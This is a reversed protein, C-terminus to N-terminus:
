KWSSQIPPFDMSSSTTSIEIKLDKASIGKYPECETNFGFKDIVCEESLEFIFELPFAINEATSWGKETTGDIMAEKTWKVIDNSTEPVTAHSKPSQVIYAGNGLSLVNFTTQTKTINSLVISLLLLIAIYGTNKM